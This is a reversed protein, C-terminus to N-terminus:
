QFTAQGDTPRARGRPAISSRLPLVHFLSLVRHALAWVQVCSATRECVCLVEGTQLSVVSAVNIGNADKM